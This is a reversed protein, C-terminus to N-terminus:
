NNSPYTILNWYNLLFKIKNKDGDVNLRLGVDMAELGPLTKWANVVCTSFSLVSSSAEHTIM